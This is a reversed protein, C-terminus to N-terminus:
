GPQHHPPHPLGTARDANAGIAARDAGYAAELAGVDDGRTRAVVLAGFAEREHMGVIIGIHDGALAGDSHFNEALMRLRQM